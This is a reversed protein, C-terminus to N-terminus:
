AWPIDDISLEFDDNKLAFDSSFIEFKQDEDNITDYSVANDKFIRLANKYYISQKSDVNRNTSM